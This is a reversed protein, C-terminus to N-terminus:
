SSIKEGLDFIIVDFVMDLWLKPYMNPMRACGHLHPDPDKYKKVQVGQRKSENWIRKSTDMTAPNGDLYNYLSIYEVDGVFWGKDNYVDYVMKPNDTNIKEGESTIFM